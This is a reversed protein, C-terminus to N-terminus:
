GCNATTPLSPFGKALLPEDTGASREVSPLVPYEPYEYYVELKDEQRCSSFLLMAGLVASWAIRSTNM